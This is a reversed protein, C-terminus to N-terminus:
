GSSTSLGKGGGDVGGIASVLHAGGPVVLRAFCNGDISVHHAVLQAGLSHHFVQSHLNEVLLAIGDVHIYGDSVDLTALVHEVGHNSEIVLTSLLFFILLSYIGSLKNFVSQPKDVLVERTAFGVNLGVLACVVHGVHSYLGLGADCPLFSGLSLNYSEFSLIANYIEDILKNGIRAIAM